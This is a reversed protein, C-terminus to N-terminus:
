EGPRRRLTEPANLPAIEPRLAEYVTAVGELAAFEQKIAAIEEPSLPSVGCTRLPTNIQVEDPSLKAAM